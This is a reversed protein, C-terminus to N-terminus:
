APAKAEGAALGGQGVFTGEWARSVYVLVLACGLGVLGFVAFGGAFSDTLKKLGGLLNPLLFGGVGGAAGVVGTLVGIERPFRQPVLQFVAGNGMGLMGMGLFLVVAGAALPPVAAMGLMMLGVGVYLGTLMRIGGFRDALYGGVPRLFSGAIVCATAFYGAHVPSLAHQDRLFTPLFSALGVFGGFTVSYLLCFWWTDRQRLV